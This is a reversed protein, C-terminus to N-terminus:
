KEVETCTVGVKKAMAIWKSYKPVKNEFINNEEGEISLLKDIDLKDYNITIESTVATDGRTVSADYYELGEYHKHIGRYAEEYEDLYESNASMVQEFSHVINLKDGTYFVDYHINVEIGNQATANRICYMQTMKKTNVKEGNSEIKNIKEQGSENTSKEDDCGTILFLASVLVLIYLIKKM